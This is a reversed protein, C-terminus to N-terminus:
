RQRSSDPMSSTRLEVQRLVELIQFTDQGAHYFPLLDPVRGERQMSQSLEQIVSTADQGRLHPIIMGPSTFDALTM